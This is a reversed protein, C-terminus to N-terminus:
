VTMATFTLIPQLPRLALPASPSLSPSSVEVAAVFWPDSDFLLMAECAESTSVDVAAALPSTSSNEGDLLEVASDMSMEIEPLPECPADATSFRPGMLSVETFKHNVAAGDPCAEEIFVRRADASEPPCGPLVVDGAVNAYLCDSMMDEEIVFDAGLRVRLAEPVPTAEVDYHMDDDAYYLRTSCDENDLIAYDNLSTSVIQGQQLTVNAFSVNGFMVTGGFSVDVVESRLQFNRFLTHRIHATGMNIIQLPPSDGAWGTFVSDAYAHMQISNANPQM